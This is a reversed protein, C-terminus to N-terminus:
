MIIEENDYDTDSSQSTTKTATGMNFMAVLLLDELNEFTALLNLAAEAEFL